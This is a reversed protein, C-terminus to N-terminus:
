KRNCAPYAGHTQVYEWLVAREVYRIFASAQPESLETRMASIFLWPVDPKCKFKSAFTMGGSHGKKGLFGSRSFQLLRGALTQGCTEGIYIISPSLSPTADPPNKDFRALMYVGATDLILQSRDIWPTWASFNALVSRM